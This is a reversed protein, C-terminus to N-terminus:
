KRTENQFVEFFYIGNLKRIPAKPIVKPYGLTIILEPVINNPLNLLIKLGKKYFSYVVCSSLKEECAQLMINQAAMASDMVSLVDRGVEGGKKYALEKDQCIVILARPTGSIGPSTAKIKEIKELNTVIIFFWTQANGGTPAWIGAEVLKVLIEKDISDHNFQRVSRRKKLIEFIHLM